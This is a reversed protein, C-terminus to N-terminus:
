LKSYFFKIFCKDGIYYPFYPELTEVSRGLQEVIPLIYSAKKPMEIYQRTNKFVQKKLKNSLVLQKYLM